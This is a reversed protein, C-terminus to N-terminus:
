DQQQLKATQTQKTDTHTSPPTYTYMMECTVAAAVAAKNCRVHTHTSKISSNLLPLKAGSRLTETNPRLHIQCIRRVARGTQHDARCRVTGAPLGRTGQAYARLDNTGTQVHVAGEGPEQGHEPPQGAPPSQGPGDRLREIGLGAHAGCCQPQVHAAEPPATKQDRGHHKPGNERPDAQPLRCRCVPFAEAGDRYQPCDGDLVLPQQQPRQQHQQQCHQQQQWSSEWVPPVEPAQDAASQPEGLRAFTEANCLGNQSEKM